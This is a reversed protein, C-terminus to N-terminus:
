GQRAKGYQVLFCWTRLFDESNNYFSFFVCFAVVPMCVRNTYSGLIESKLKNYYKLRQSICYRATRARDVCCVVCM